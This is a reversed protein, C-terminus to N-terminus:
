PCVVVDIMCDEGTGPRPGATAHDGQGGGEAPLSVVDGGVEAPPPDQEGGPVAADGGARVRREVETAQGVVVRRVDVGVAVPEGGRYPQRALPEQEALLDVARADV